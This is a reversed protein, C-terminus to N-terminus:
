AYYGDMWAPSLLILLWFSACYAKIPSSLEGWAFVTLALFLATVSLQLVNEVTWPLSTMGFHILWGLSATFGTWPFTLTRHWSRQAELLANVPLQQVGLYYAYAAAALIPPIIAKLRTNLGCSRLAIPVALVLILGTSRTLIAAAVWLGARLGDGRRAHCLAGAAALLFLAETYPAFTFFATPFVAVLWVARTATEEGWERCALARVYFLAGLFAGNSLLIGVVDGFLGMTMGAKILLPYLPFFALAPKGHITFHYGYHAIGLYWKADWQRWIRLPNDHRLVAAVTTVLLLAFRSVAFSAIM